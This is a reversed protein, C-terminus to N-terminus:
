RVENLKLDLDYARSESLQDIVDLCHLRTAADGQRYLRLVISILYDATIPHRTTIDGLATGAFAIARECATITADPLIQTSHALASIPIDFHEAYATSDVFIRLLPDADEPALDPLARLASAAAARVGADDDTFLERLAPLEDVPYGALVQAAGRRAAPSLDAIQTPLPEPLTRRLHGVAWAQGAYEAATDPGDLARKLHPAFQKPRRALGSILLAVVFRTGLLDIDAGILLEETLDLALELRHNMLARLAEAAQARVGLIPDTALAALARLFHEVYEPGRFLVDAIARAASGRTSNLGAVLLDGGFFPKGSSAATRALERDPDPDSACQDLLGVLADNVEGGARSVAFCITRRVARGAADHAHQCLEGLLATSIKGAVTEILRRFYVPRIDADFRLALRAYREPDEAARQALLEALESAGGIPIDESWSIKESSHKTLARLWDEDSMLHSARDPVPPSVRHAEVPRPAAPPAGSFKRELEGVRRVVEPSRRSPEIASLLDYQARDRLHRNEATM